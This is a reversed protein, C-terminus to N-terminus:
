KWLGGRAEFDLVPIDQTQLIDFAKMKNENRVRVVVTGRGNLHAALGATNLCNVAEPRRAEPVWLTLEIEPMLKTLLDLPTLTDVLRGQELMLVRNALLEVEELRHSAFLITKGEEQRLLALLSLYDRQAGADLSATPEDLLLVPPDALLAIALALRQRLGGSLAPVPKRTHDALGLRALLEALREPGVGKLRAYFELTARVSQDYFVVDQPVYGIFRRAQKGNRRVDSGEVQIRGQFELLGLMAKILTSKGAGNAGWLAIAEGARAEFSVGELVATKGYRKSVHEVKISPPTVASLASNASLHGRSNEISSNRKQIVAGGHTMALVGGAVGALILVLGVGAMEGGAASGASETIPIALPELVPAPDELKPLPKVIPFASAAFEVAQAAPSYLLVRLLPERDTLGEFLHEARYAVDGVGDPRGGAGDADFGAYDSWYNGRWTNQGAGAGAGVGGQVSVQQGNEWFTNGIFENGKVAPLLIAGVDNVAIINGEFRAFSNPNFPTGDLFLGARNDALLNDTVAVDDTDKFGLAYGSPGRQRRVDNARIVVDRSYMSFIGVSNDRLINRELRAGNSYMLHVGYRGHEVVNDRMIVDEAYWLVVDRSEHIVNHEVLVRASYWLRVGDGKRGSDYETKSTIDNGRIVVDDAGAVYVGFLVDSLRNDEVVVKPATVIVGAHDRDPESGSGSIEFGRLVIGPAALTVVTDRDNNNINPWGIGALTVSKTVVLGGPYVGGRVEITDGDDAAALAATISTYPGAPSVVLLHAAQLSPSPLDSPSAWVPMVALCVVAIVWGSGMRWHTRM